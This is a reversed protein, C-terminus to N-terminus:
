PAARGVGSLEVPPFGDHTGLEQLWHSHWDKSSQGQPQSYISRAQGGDGLGPEIGLCHLM